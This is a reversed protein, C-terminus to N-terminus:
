NIGRTARAIVRLITDSLTECEFQRAQLRNVTDRHLDVEVLDDGLDVASPKWERFPDAQAWIANACEKTITVKM